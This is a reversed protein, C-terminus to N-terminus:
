ANARPSTFPYPFMPPINGRSSQTKWEKKDEWAERGTDEFLLEATIKGMDGCSM